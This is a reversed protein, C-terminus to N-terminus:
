NAENAETNEQAGNDSPVHGLIPIPKGGSTVDIGQSPLGDMYNWCIKIMEKDGESIAKHLIRKVLLEKAPKEQGEPVKELEERVMATISLGKPRGNPNGSQGPKFPKLNENNM